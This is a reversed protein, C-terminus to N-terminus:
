DGKGDGDDGVEVNTTEPDTANSRLVNDVLRALSVLLYVPARIAFVAIEIPLLIARVPLVNLSDPLRPVLVPEELSMSATGLSIAFGNETTSVNYSFNDGSYFKVYPKEKSYDEGFGMMNVPHTDNVFDIFLTSNDNDIIRECCSDNIDTSDNDIPEYSDENGDYYVHAKFDALNFFKTSLKLMKDAM